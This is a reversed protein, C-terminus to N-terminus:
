LVLLQHLFTGAQVAQMGLAATHHDYFADAAVADQALRGEQM